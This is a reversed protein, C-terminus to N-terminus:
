LYVDYTPIKRVNKELLCYLVIREDDTTITTLDISEPTRLLHLDKREGAIRLYREKLKRSERMIVEHKVSGVNVAGAIADYIHAIDDDNDLRRLKYDSNLFGQMDNDTIEPLAIMISPVNDSYWIVGAENLCYASSYYERSLIAVNICSNKMNDRVEGSIRERVDNGPLSSCFVAEKPIGTGVLFDLLADAIAKDTSRHSIFIVSSM